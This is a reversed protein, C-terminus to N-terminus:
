KYLLYPERAKEFAKLGPEFSQLLAAVDIGKELAERVKGTGMVKDFYEAHFEFKDPYMERITKIIHLATEYPRYSNRETVHLQAGGCTEGAFKSFSPTFWAERFAVGPLALGNLKRALDFGDIWPAGFMEFPRTTGRGESVNTGELCVQGPYVIATDLTPMNPSPIVWPLGTDDFWMDRRWGHMPVVTLDAKKELFRDNIMLALEGVTMGHREPIPYLGIFSSFAPYELVPGEMILGNIPNPRDLVIFPIGAEAASQMAYAMTAPYTYVRTGVDQIDFVLANVDKIMTGEPIKGQGKADGDFSRMYADMDKLMGPEPKLSQGYLSFVPLSYKEDFYFPVYIGGQVNARVGHEPGYLAVLEFEGSKKLRDIDSRLRSDLGTPNTILGVRKGRVLDLRSNLLVEVGLKVAGGPLPTQPPAEKKPGCSLQLTVGATLVLVPLLAAGLGGRHVVAKMKDEQM